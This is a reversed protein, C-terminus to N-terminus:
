GNSTGKTRTTSLRLRLTECIFSILMGLCATGLIVQWGAADNVAFAVLIMTVIDVWNFRRGAIFDLLAYRM